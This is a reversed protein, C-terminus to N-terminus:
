GCLKGKSGSSTVSLIQVLDNRDIQKLVKMTVEVSQQIYTKWMQNVLDFMDSNELKSSPIRERGEGIDSNELKWIFAKFEQQNLDQLM